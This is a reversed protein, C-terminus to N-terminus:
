AFRKIECSTTQWNVKLLNLLDSQQWFKYEQMRESRPLIWRNLALKSVKDVSLLGSLDPAGKGTQLIELSNRALECIFVERQIGHKLLDAKFGLASLAARTTRLKWNPGNGFRHMDAYPHGITRLYERLNSFLDDPIHFHGWGGTYGIPKLYHTGDLKLRNYVSSRGMSSSTTIALLRAHKEQGSIIGKTNGYIELFDSYVEKTRLLCAILKGGLLYNYPPIAGLVYADLINALRQGREDSNWGILQDRVSLNFVPDGIALIGMLKNNGSDWVLYRLRRGFGNSVPVSWTLSAFRFLDSEWTGSHVKQLVPRIKAPDIEKGLAFHDVLKSSNQTIFDQNKKLRDNRQVSHLNRVIEKGSGPLVLSGDESKHFGLNSLHKRLKRKLSAESTFAPITISSEM